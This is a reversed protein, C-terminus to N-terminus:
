TSSLNCQILWKIVLIVTATVKLSYLSWYGSEYLCTSKWNQINECTEQCNTVCRQLTRFFLAYNVINNPIEERFENWATQIWHEWVDNVMQGNRCYSGIMFVKQELLSSLKSHIRFYAFLTRFLVTFIIEGAIM